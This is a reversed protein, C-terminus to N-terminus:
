RWHAPVWFPRPGRTDWHGPIWRGYHPRWAVYHGRRWVYAAGNWEWGGGQWALREGPPPPPPPAEYQPPPIPAYGYPQAAAQGAAALCGFLALASVIRNRTRM